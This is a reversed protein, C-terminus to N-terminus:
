FALAIFSWALRERGHPAQAAALTACVAAILYSGAQAAENALSRQEGPLILLLWAHGVFAAVVAAGLLAVTRRAHSAPEPRDKSAPSLRSAHPQTDEPQARSALPDSAM